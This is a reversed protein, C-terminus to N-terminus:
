CMTCITSIPLRASVADGNEKISDVTAPWWVIAVANPDDPSAEDDVLEWKVLINMDKKLGHVVVPKAIVEKEEGDDIKLKKQQQQQEQEISNGNDTVEDSAIDSAPRKSM